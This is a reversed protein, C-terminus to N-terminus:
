FKVFKEVCMEANNPDTVRVLFSGSPLGNINFSVASGSNDLTTFVDGNEDIIDINYQSLVGSITYYNNTPDPFVEICDASLGINKGAAYQLKVLGTGNQSIYVYGDSSVDIGSPQIAINKYENTTLDNFSLDTTPNDMVYIAAYVSDSSNQQETLWLNGDVGFVIPGPFKIDLNGSHKSIDTIGAAPPANFTGSDAGTMRYVKFPGNSPNISVYITTPNNDDATIYGSNYFDNDILNMAPWINTWSQGGDESRYLGEKLDLLYVLGSNENDPWVFKSNNKSSNNIGTSKCWNSNGNCDSTNYRYVGEGEVVALITQTTPSTGNHYGYTVARVRGDNSPTAAKLNKSIWLTDSPNGVLNSAKVFVEGKGLNNTDRDGTAIILEDAKTDFIIDYAKSDSNKAKDRSIDDGEFRNSTEMVVFDTNAVAVQTPKNKNVAVANNATAQMNYVAPEWLDGGNESKWIGGRGSVFIIDDVVTNIFNGSSVDISSTVYRSRGLSANRWGKTSYWWDFSKGYIQDTVNVNADVLGTWSNGGNVTRWISSYNGSTNNNGAYIVDNNNKVYGSVATWTRSIDIDSNKLNWSTGNFKVIGETSIAGYVNGNSLVALGEPRLTEHVLTSTLNSPDRYDIEYIGNKSEDTFQIAAYAIGKVDDNGAVSRVLGNPEFTFLEIDGGQTFIKVGTDYTGVIVTDDTFTTPNNGKAIVILDGNSRPHGKPISDNPDSHNGSFQANFGDATIFWSDGGDISRFLGGSGGKNGTGCYLIQENDPTIALSAVKPSRLGENCNVYNLGGDSSKFIGSVDASSYVTITDGDDFITVDSQFGGASINHQQVNISTIQISNQGIVNFIFFLINIIFLVQKIM